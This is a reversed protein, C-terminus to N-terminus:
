NHKHSSYTNKSKPRKALEINEEDTFAINDLISKQDLAVERQSIKFIKMFFVRCISYHLIGSAFKFHVRMNVLSGLRSVIHHRSTINATCCMGSALM